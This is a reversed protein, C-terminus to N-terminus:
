GRGQVYIKLVACPHENVPSQMRNEKGLRPTRSVSIKGRGKGQPRRANNKQIFGGEFRETDGKDELKSEEPDLVWQAGEREEGEEEGSNGEGRGCNPLRDSAKKKTDVGTVQENEPQRARVNNGKTEKEGVVEREAPRVKGRGKKLREASRPV